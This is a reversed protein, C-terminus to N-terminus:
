LINIQFQLEVRHFTVVQTNFKFTFLLRLVYDTGCHDFIYDRYTLVEAQDDLAQNLVEM